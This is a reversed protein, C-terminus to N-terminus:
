QPVGYMRKHNADRLYTTFLKEFFNHISIDTDLYSQLLFSQVLCDCHKTNSMTTDWWVVTYLVYEFKIKHVDNTATSAEQLLGKDVRKQHEALKQM